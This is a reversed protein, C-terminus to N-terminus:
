LKVGVGDGSIASLRNLIKSRCSDCEGAVDRLIKMIAEQKKENEVMQRALDQNELLGAKQLMEIRKQEVDAVTKLTSTKSRYDGNADAEQVVSWLEGIIMSFHQDASYVAISARDQIEKSNQAVKEWLDLLEVVTKRPMKLEKSIQLPTMGKLLREAVQNMSDYYEGADIVELEASTM